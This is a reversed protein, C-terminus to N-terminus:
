VHLNACQTCTDDDHMYQTPLMWFCVNCVKCTDQPCSLFLLKIIEQIWADREDNAPSNRFYSRMKSINPALCQQYINHEYTFHLWEQTAISLPTTFSKGIIKFLHLLQNYLCKSVDTQQQCEEKWVKYNTNTSINM